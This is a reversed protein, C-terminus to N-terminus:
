TFYPNSRIYTFYQYQYPKNRSEYLGSQYVFPYLDPNSKIDNWNDFYIYKPVNPSTTPIQIQVPKISTNSIVTIHFKVCQDFFLDYIQNGGIIYITKMPYKHHLKRIIKIADNYQAIFVTKTDNIIPEYVHSIVVHIRNPLPSAPLSEYTKRGMVIIQNTTLEKFHTLDEPVHWPITNKNGDGIIGDENCAVILEMKM